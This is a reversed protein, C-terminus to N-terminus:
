EKLYIALCMLFIAHDYVDLIYFLVAVTMAVVSGINSMIDYTEKKMNNKKKNTLVGLLFRVKMGPKPFRHEIRQAIPATLITIGNPTSGM